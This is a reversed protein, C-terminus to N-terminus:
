NLLVVGLNLYLAFALWLLYPVLPRGAKPDARGFSTICGAALLLMGVLLVLAAARMQWVFFLLPWLFNAALQLAYLRFARKKEEAPAGSKWVLWSAYGMLLYLVTWVVPFVWAPPTGLPKYLRDFAPYGPRAALGAAAGTVLPLALAALLSQWRFGKKM